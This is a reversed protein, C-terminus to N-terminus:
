TFLARIFSTGQEMADRISMIWDHGSPILTVLSLVIIVIAVIKVIKGSIKVLLMIGAIILLLSFFSTVQPGLKDLAEGIFPVKELLGEM